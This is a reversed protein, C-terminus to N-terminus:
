ARTTAFFPGPSWGAFSGSAPVLRDDRLPCSVAFPTLEAFQCLLESARQRVLKSSDDDILGAEGPAVVEGELPRRVDACLGREVALGVSGRWGDERRNLFLEAELEFGGLTGDWNEDHVV